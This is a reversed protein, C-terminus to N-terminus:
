TRLHWPILKNIRAFEPVSRAGMRDRAKRGVPPSGINLASVVASKRQVLGAGARV